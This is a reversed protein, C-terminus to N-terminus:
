RIFGTEPYFLLIDSATDFGLNFPVQQLQGVWSAHHVLDFPAETRRTKISYVTECNSGRELLRLLRNRPGFSRM